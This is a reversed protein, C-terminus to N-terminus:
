ERAAPCASLTITAPGDSGPPWDTLPRCDGALCLEYAGAYPSHALAVSPMPALRPRYHWAGDILTADDPMEMGAGTGRIRAAVVQLRGDAIRWDEEWRTKEISHTWALTFTAVPIAAVLKGAALCLASM